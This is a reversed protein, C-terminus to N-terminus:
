SHLHSLRPASCASSYGETRHFLFQFHNPIPNKKHTPILDRIAMAFAANLSLDKIKM